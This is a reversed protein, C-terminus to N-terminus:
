LYHNECSIITSVLPRFPCIKSEGDLGVPPTRRSGTGPGACCSLRFTMRSFSPSRPPHNCASPRTYTDTRSRTTDLSPLGGQLRFAPPGLSRPSREPLAPGSIVLCFGVRAYERICSHRPKEALSYITIQFSLQIKDSWYIRRLLLYAAARRETERSGSEQTSPERFARPRPV